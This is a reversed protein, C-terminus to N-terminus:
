TKRARALQKRVWRRLDDSALDRHQAPAVLEHFTQGPGPVLTAQPGRGTARKRRQESLHDQMMAVLEGKPGTVVTLKM